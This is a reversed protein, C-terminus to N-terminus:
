EDPEEGITERFYISGLPIIMRTNTEDESWDACLVIYPAMGPEKPEMVENILLGVSSCKQPKAGNDGVEWGMETHPDFWRVRQIFRM